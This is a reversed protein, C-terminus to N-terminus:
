RSYIEVVTYYEYSGLNTAVGLGTTAQSTQCIHRIEFEKSAVIDIAATGQSVDLSAGSPCYGSSGEKVTTSNTYNYLSSKHRNVAYAPARWKVTYSGAPLTFRGTATNLSAGPLDNFDEYTLARTQQAGATFTGGSTNLTKRDVWIALLKGGNEAGAGGTLKRLRTGDFTVLEARGAAMEGGTFADGGADCLAVAALGGIAVTMAGTNDALPTLLFTMGTLLAPPAVDISCVLDNTGATVTLAQPTRDWLAVIEANVQNQWGPAPTRGAM